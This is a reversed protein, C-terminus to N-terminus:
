CVIVGTLVVSCFWLCASSLLSFTAKAIVILANFSCVIWTFM